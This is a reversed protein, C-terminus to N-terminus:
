SLPHSADAEPDCARSTGVGVAGGSAATWRNWGALSGDERGIRCLKADPPVTRVAGSLSPPRQQRAEGRRRSGEAGSRM